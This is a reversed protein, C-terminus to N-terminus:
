QSATPRTPSPLERGGVRLKLARSPLERVRGPLERVLGRLERARDRLKQARDPVRGSLERAQDM